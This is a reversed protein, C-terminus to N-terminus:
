QGAGVDFGALRDAESAFLVALITSPHSTSSRKPVERELDGRRPVFIIYIDRIHKGSFDAFQLDDIWTTFVIWRDDKDIRNTGDILLV